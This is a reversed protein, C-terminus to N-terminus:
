LLSLPLGYIVPAAGNLFRLKCEDRSQRVADSINVTNKSDSASTLGWKSFLSLSFKDIDKDTVDWLNGLIMPCGGVLYSYITGYPELLNNYRLAASSCGLLLTPAIKDMKKLTTSRIFQEGGGHGIYVFLNSDQLSKSFEEETPRKGTIGKWNLNESLDKIQEKFRGETKVLDGSPNLIFSGNRKNIVLRENMELSKLLMSLSPMRTTSSERLSPLSEWPISQCEKGVILITHEYKSPTPNMLMYEKILAEVEVYINDIDIEDYANEEGHFLLIDLVFYILDELLETSGLESPDGLGIFLEIIFDDIEIPKFNQNRQSRSPVYQGLISLFKEKLQAKQCVDIKNQSFIGKFGGIWCYEIKDLFACLKEDLDYREQHWQQRDELTTISSTRDKTTTKNSEMIIENLGKMADQFSFSEEDITRSSHRSLPLRLISPTPINESIKSIILDGNFSCIDISIVLWNEPIRQLLTTDIISKTSITPASLDQIPAEVKFNPTLDVAKSTAEILQKDNVFPNNKLFEGLNFLDDLSENHYSNSISSLTLLGLAFIKHVEDVEYNSLYKLESFLDLIFSRSQRLDQISKKINKFSKSKAKTSQSHQDIEQDQYTSPISMASDELTSFVPDVELTRKASNFLRKSNIIYNISSLYPDKSKNITLDILETNFHYEYHLRWVNSLLKGEKEVHSLFGKLKKRVDVKSEINADYIQALYHYFILKYNDIIDEKDLLGLTNFIQDSKLRLESLEKYRGTVYFYYCIFYNNQAYLPKYRMISENFKNFEDVYYDADKSAGLHILTSILHRFSSSLYSFMQLNEADNKIVSKSLQACVKASTIAEMHNGFIRFLKASYYHLKVLLTIIEKFQKKPYRNKNSASLIDSNAEIYEHIETSINLLTTQDYMILFYKLKLLSYNLYRITFESTTEFDNETNELDFVATNLSIINKLSLTNDLQEYKYWDKFDGVNKQVYKEISLLLENLSKQFNTFKLYNVLRELFHLEFLTPGERNKILWGNKYLHLIKMLNLTSKTKIELTLYYSSRILPGSHYVTLGQQNQNKVYPLENYFVGCFMQLMPEDIELAQFFTSLQDYQSYKSYLVFTIARNDQCLDNFTHEHFSYFQFVAAFSEDLIDLKHLLETQSLSNLFDDNWVLKFFAETQCGQSVLYKLSKEFKRSLDVLSRSKNLFSLEIKICSIVFSEIYKPSKLKLAFNYFLNSINKLRKSQGHRTFLHQLIILADQLFDPSTLFKMSSMVFKDLVLLTDKNLHETHCLYYRIIIELDESPSPLQLLNIIYIGLQKHLEATPRGLNELESRILSSNVRSMNLLRLVNNSPGNDTIIENWKLEPFFAQNQQLNKFHKVIDNFSENHNVRLYNYLFIPLQGYNEINMIEKQLTGTFTEQSLNSIFTKFSFGFQHLYQLFKLNLCMKFVICPSFKVFSLLLKLISNKQAQSMEEVLKSDDGFFALIKDSDNFSKLQFRKFLVQLILFKLSIQSSRDLLVSEIPDEMTPLGQNHAAKIESLSVSYDSNLENELEFLKLIYAQHKKLVDKRKDLIDLRYLQTFASSVLKLFSSHLSKVSKFNKLVLDISNICLKYIEQPNNTILNSRKQPSSSQSSSPNSSSISKLKAPSNLNVDKLPLSNLKLAAYSSIIYELENDM